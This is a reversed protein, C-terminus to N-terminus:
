VLAGGALLEGVEDDQLGLVDRLVEVSHEGLCPSAFRPGGDYGAIRFQHGEYPVVGMEPHEHERHYRRHALQPDRLLDSSRQVAGAPIGASQLRAMVDYRDQPRTWAELRADIERRHGVRGASAAFRPDMVWAEDCLLSQLSKWQEDNEVAIAVWQDDGACPYVNHPAMAVDDNGARRPMSGDVQHAIIEPALFYLASEMQAQEIYQGEGTRRRHEIAALVTAALFRPAITDTYAAFPGGPARDAWGTIEYFGSIAAAHNGYGAMSAAPGSQGMLCSSVMIVSPNLEKAVEYGLGLDAMTGPTFSEVVVDAWAILKRAIETASPHKLNLALSRKSTNFAGFFQSRNTGFVGDKFPGAVRLRDPPNATEVRVVDAGHDALYKATIPGVGIWSFDAVKLGSLPLEGGPAPASAPRRASEARVEETHEGPRAVSAEIRLPKAQPRVFAGPLRVGPGGPPQYNRWYGREGLHEFALVDAVTNVPAISVSNELGFRLLEAKTIRATHQRLAEVCEDYTHALPQGGLWRTDYTNWDEDHEWSEPVIGERVMWPVLQPMCSRNAIIVVEGDLCPYVVPVTATGLQLFSGQREMDKGQIAHAIMSNLGTWSVAAQVSVDVFQGEGTQLRRHHAVLAGVASEVGAHYWCQPVTIRVPPRDADGNIAMMGGMAALTLDTTQHHAYPGDQGFATTAVYVLYPNLRALEEYGLGRRTMEGPGANEFLFDAGAVLQEFERHGAGRELDIEVSRKGRNFALFRASVLGGDDSPILPAELRAPSGGPPEVLIVEAGMAALVYPGLAGRSDTVDLVRYPSLM